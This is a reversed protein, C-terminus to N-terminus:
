LTILEDVRVPRGQEISTYAAIGIISSMIGDELGARQALQDETGPKFLKDKILTDAGGHGGSVTRRELKVIEADKFNRWLRVNSRPSVDWSRRDYNHLELRGKSGHFVIYQGETASTANLSYTVIAGSDYRIQVSMTDYINIARRYLCADRFYGDQDECNVYLDVYRKNQMIDWYLECKNKFTCRRCNVHRFEGNRGYKKLDGFASIEVPRADLWWNLQDFHHSAKHCLLTGSCQKLGHWRRFYSAGHDLDLFEAYDASYIEGIAGEMLLEKAKMTSMGYRANFTVDLRRGTRKRTDIIRQAQEADTCLPKESIADCGLEMARCVYREHLADVTTVIVADPRTTRVMEDFDTFVPANGPIISRAFRARKINVDCLGVMEVLDGYGEILNQGWTASGRSGTGVLAVRKKAPAAGMAGVGAAASLAGAAALASASRGIFERRSLDRRENQM